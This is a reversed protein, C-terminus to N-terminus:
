GHGETRWITGDPAIQDGPRLGYKEQVVQRHAASAARQQGLEQEASALQLRRLEVQFVAAQERAQGLQLALLDALEIRMVPPPATHPQPATTPEPQPATAPPDTTNVDSM